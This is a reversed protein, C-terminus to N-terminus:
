SGFKVSIYLRAAARTSLIRLPAFGASRGTSNGVLNSNTMLRLVAFASPRSIGGLRRVRASSTISYLQQTSRRMLGNNACIRLASQTSCHGLELAFRFVHARVSNKEIQGPASREKPTPAPFSAECRMLLDLAPIAYRSITTEAPIDIM